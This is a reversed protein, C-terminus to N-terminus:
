VMLSAVGALADALLLLGAPDVPVGGQLTITTGDHRPDEDDQWQTLEVTVSGAPIDTYHVWGGADDDRESYTAWGPPCCRNM